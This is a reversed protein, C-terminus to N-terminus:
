EKWRPPPCRTMLKRYGDNKFVEPHSSHITEIAEWRRGTFNDLYSQLAPPEPIDYGADILCKREALEATYAARMAADDYVPLPFQALGKENCAKMAAFNADRQEPPYSGTISQDWGMEVKWGAAEMCAAIFKTRDNPTLPQPTVDPPAGACATLVMVLMALGAFEVVRRMM